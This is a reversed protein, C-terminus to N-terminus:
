PKVPIQHFGWQLDFVTWLNNGEQSAIIDEIVPLPEADAVTCENLWRYYIVIRYEKKGPKPVVFAAAAWESDRSEEIWGKSYM